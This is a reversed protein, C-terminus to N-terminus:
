DCLVEHPIPIGFVIETYRDCSRVPYESCAGVGFIGLCKGGCQASSVCLDGSDKYGFDCYHAYEPLCFGYCVWKGGMELCKNKYASIIPVEWTKISEMGSVDVQFM